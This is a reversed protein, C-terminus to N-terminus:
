RVGRINSRYWEREFVDDLTLVMVLPLAENQFRVVGMMIRLKMGESASQAM